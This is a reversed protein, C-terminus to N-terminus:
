IIAKPFTNLVDEDLANENDSELNLEIEESNDDSQNENDNNDNIEKNSDKSTIKEGTKIIYDNNPKLDHAKLKEHVNYSYLM